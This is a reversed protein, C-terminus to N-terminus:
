FGARRFFDARSAVDRSYNRGATHTDVPLGRRILRTVRGEGSNYAALAARLVGQESLVPFTADFYDLSSALLSTGKDIGAAASKGSALWSACWAPHWESDIQMLGHGYGNDGIVNRGRTERSIVGAIVHAPVGYKKSAADISTRYASVRALDEAALREFANAPVPALAEGAPVALAPHVRFSPPASAPPADLAPAVTPTALLAHAIQRDISTGAFRDAVPARVELAPVADLRSPSLAASVNPPLALQIPL